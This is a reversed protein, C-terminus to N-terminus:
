ARPTTGDDTRNRSAAGRRRRWLIIFLGIWSIAVSTGVLFQATLAHEQPYIIGTLYYDIFGVDGMGSQGANVRGWNEVYTLPCEWGVINIALSYAAVPVHLWFARPWRWTLFGGLTVYLLFAFHLIMAIEGIVQYFM